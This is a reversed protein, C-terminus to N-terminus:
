EVSSENSYDDFYMQLGNTDATSVSLGSYSENAHILDFNFTLTSGDVSSSVSGNEDYNIVLQSVKNVYAMDYDNQTTYFELEYYVFNLSETDNIDGRNEINGKVHLALTVATGTKSYDIQVIDINPKQSTTVNDTDVVDNQDDTFTKKEDAASVCLTSAFLISFFVLGCILLKKMM